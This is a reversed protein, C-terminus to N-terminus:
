FFSTVVALVCLETNARFIWSFSPGSFNTEVEGEITKEVVTWHAEKAIGKYLDYRNNSENWFFCWPVINFVVREGPIGYAPDAIIEARCKVPDDGGRHRIDYLSDSKCHWQSYAINAYLVLTSICIVVVFRQAERM